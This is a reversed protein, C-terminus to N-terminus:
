IFIKKLKAALVEQSYREVAYSRASKSMVIRKKEDGILQDIKEALDPSNKIKVKLGDLGDRFVSRVGPLDSAIVPLGCAMAEILVLGFAEHKNISPLIFIDSDQYNKILTAEDVKGLFKVRDELGLLKTRKQYADQLNGSGIIHLVWNKNTLLNLANLLVDLGKFYHASDLGGVFLLTVRGRKIFNKTVFSIIEKTKSMVANEKDPLKPTFKNIDLGFPIECIKDPNNKAFTAIQSNELYELSASIVKDARNFLSDRLLRSPLSLLRLYWALKDTDMHYHIVLKTKQHFLLYLWVIESAGFFPYHLYICDFSKLSFLLSLPLGAHGMRILPNLRKIGLEKTKPENKQRLTFTTVEHELALIKGFRVASHGIGGNYPPFVCVIQAIKM